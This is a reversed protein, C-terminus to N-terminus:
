QSLNKFILFILLSILGLIFKALVTEYFKKSMKQHHPIHSEIEEHHKECLVAIKKNNNHRGKFFQRPYIHHRTLHESSGCKACVKGKLSVKQNARM